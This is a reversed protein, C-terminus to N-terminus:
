NPLTVYTLPVPDVKIETAVTAPPLAAYCEQASGQWGAHWTWCGHRRYIDAVQSVFARDVDCRLLGSAGFGPYRRALTEARTSCYTSVWMEFGLEARLAEVVRFMQVHDEHGYEGWPNHTFVRVCGALEQKLRNRLTTFNERYRRAAASDEAARDLAIGFADPTPHAWNALGLSVAEALDLCRLDRYPLEALAAARRAGIGPLSDCDRFAVVVRGVQPLIAGFWLVEDDPHAVVLAAEALARADLRIEAPRTM